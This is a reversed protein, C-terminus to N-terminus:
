LGLWARLSYDLDAADQASVKGVTKIILYQHITIIGRKITSMVNLGAAKWDSLVFEGALPADTKSTLPVVFVDQSKHPASVTVAPRVKANSRDSFPYRVLVVDGKSYNPM